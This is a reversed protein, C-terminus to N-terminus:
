KGRDALWKRMMAIEGEQASIVDEALKRVAPDSGYKVAVRAMDIAGQHHPIMGRMFDVDADGSFTIAMDTHMRDNADRYARVVPNGSAPTSGHSGHVDSSMTTEHSPAGIRSQAYALGAAATIACALFIPTLKNM